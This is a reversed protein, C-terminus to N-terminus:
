KTEQVETENNKACRKLIWESVARLVDPAITEEIESCESVKDIQCNQMGHNVGKLTILTYDSNKAAQLANRIASLNQKAEVLMDLDGNLALVPIKIQQLTKEPEYTLFYRFWTANFLRIQADVDGYYKEIVKKYSPHIQALYTTCFDRLKKEAKKQRKEKTVITFASKLFDKTVKTAKPDINDAKQFLAAQKEMIKQGNVGPGALFVLFAVDKSKIAALPATLGGESHGIFGIHQADIDTRRKLYEVAAVADQAFNKLNSNEYNGTSKGAGRKDFRLVAIGQKTLYDSLVLFPKHGFLPEDRELPASGHLLIAAPYPGKTSPLALTGQLKTGDTANEFCVEEEFYPYPKIPEQPRNSEFWESIIKIRKIPCNELAHNGRPVEVYQVLHSKLKDLLNYGQKQSIRVDDTGQIILMPLDKRIQPATVLPDRLKIWEKDNVEPILGYQEVFMEKIEPYDRMMEQLDTIGTLSCIRDVRKQLDPNRALTAFMQLAGRSVGICFTKKPKLEIHLMKELEPIYDFLNKCDDVDKGGYEDRGGDSLGRYLPHVVTYDHFCTLFVPHSPGTSHNSSGRFLFLLPKGKPKRSISVYARVELGDSPYSIVFYRRKSELIYKKAPSDDHLKQLVLDTIEKIKEGPEMECFLANEKQIVFAQYRDKDEDQRIKAREADTIAALHRVFCLSFFTLIVYFNM